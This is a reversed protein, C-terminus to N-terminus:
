TWIRVALVAAASYVLVTLPSLIWVPATNDKRRTAILSLLPIHYTIYVLEVIRWGRIPIESPHVKMDAEAKEPNKRYALMRLRMLPIWAVELGAIAAVYWYHHLLSQVTAM